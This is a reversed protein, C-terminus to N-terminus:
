TVSFKKVLKTEGKKNRGFDNAMTDTLMNDIRKKQKNMQDFFTKKTVGVNMQDLFKKGFNHKVLNNRFM